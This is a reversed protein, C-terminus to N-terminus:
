TLITTSFTFDLPLLSNCNNKKKEERSNKAQFSVEFAHAPLCMVTHFCVQTRNSYHKILVEPFTKLELNQKGTHKYYVFRAKCSQKPVTWESLPTMDRGRDSPTNASGPPRRGELSQQLAQARLGAALADGCSFPAFWRCSFCVRFLGVESALLELFVFNSTQQNEM